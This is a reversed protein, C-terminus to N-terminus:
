ELLAQVSLPTEADPLTKEIFNKIVSLSFDFKNKLEFFFNQNKKLGEFTMIKDYCWINVKRKFGM